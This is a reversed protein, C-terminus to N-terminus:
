PTETLAWTNSERDFHAAMKNRDATELMDVGCLCPGQEGDNHCEVDIGYNVLDDWTTVRECGNITVGPCGNPHHRALEANALVEAALMLAPGDDATCEHGQYRELIERVTKAAEYPTM